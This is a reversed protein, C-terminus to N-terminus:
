QVTGLSGDPTHVSAGMVFIRVERETTLRQLNNGGATMEAGVGSVRCEVGSVLM